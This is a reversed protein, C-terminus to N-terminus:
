LSTVTPCRIGLFLAPHRLRSIRHEAFSCHHAFSEVETYKAFRGRDLSTFRWRKGNSLLTLEHACHSEGRRRYIALIDGDLVQRVRKRWIRNFVLFEHSLTRSNADVQCRITCFCGVAKFTLWIALFGGVAAVPTWNFQPKALEQILFSFTIILGFVAIGLFILLRRSWSTDRYFWFEFVGPKIEEVLPLQPSM